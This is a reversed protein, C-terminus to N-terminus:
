IVHEINLVNSYDDEKKQEKINDININNKIKIDKKMTNLKDSNKILKNIDEGIKNFVKSFNIDKTNFIDFDKIEDIIDKILGDIEKNPTIVKITIM